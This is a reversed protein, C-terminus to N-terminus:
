TIDVNAYKRKFLHYDKSSAAWAQPGSPPIPHSHPVFVSWAPIPDRWSGASRPKRKVLLTKVRSQGGAYGFRVNEWSVMNKWHRRKQAWCGGGVGSGAFLRPFVLPISSESESPSGSLHSRRIWYSCCIAFPNRLLTASSFQPDDMGCAALESSWRVMPASLGTDPVNVGEVPSILILTWPSKFRATWDAFCRGESVRM